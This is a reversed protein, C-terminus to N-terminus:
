NSSEESSSDIGDQDSDLLVKLESVVRFGFTEPDGPNSDIIRRLKSFLEVQGFEGTHEFVESDSKEDVAVRGGAYRLLRLYTCEPTTECGLEWPNIWGSSFLHQKLEQLDYIKSIPLLRERVATSVTEVCCYPSQIQTELECGLAYAFNWAAKAELSVSCTEQINSGYLLAVLLAPVTKNDLTFLKKTLSYLNEVSTIQKMLDRSVKPRGFTLIYWGLIMAETGNIPFKVGVCGLLTKYQKRQLYLYCYERVHIKKGDKEAYPYNSCALAYLDEPKYEGCEVKIDESVKISSQPNTLEKQLASLLASTRDM